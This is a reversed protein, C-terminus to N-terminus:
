DALSKMEPLASNSKKKFRVTNKNKQCVWSSNHVSYAKTDYNYLITFVHKSAVAILRPCVSVQMGKLGSSTGETM